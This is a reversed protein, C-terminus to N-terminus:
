YLYDNLLGNFKNLDILCYPIISNKEIQEIVLDLIRNISNSFIICENMIKNFEKIEFDETLNTVEKIRFRLYNDLEKVIM